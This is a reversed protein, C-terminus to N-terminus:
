WKSRGSLDVTLPFTVTRAFNLNLDEMLNFLRHRSLPYLSTEWKGTSPIYDDSMEYADIYYVDGNKDEVIHHNFKDAGLWSGFYTCVQRHLFRFMKLEEHDEIKHLKHTTVSLSM